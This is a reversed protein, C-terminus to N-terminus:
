KASKHSSSKTQAFIVLEVYSLGIWLHLLYSPSQCPMTPLCNLGLSCVALFVENARSFHMNM